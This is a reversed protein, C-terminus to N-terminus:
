QIAELLRRLNGGAIASKHDEDLRAYMVQAVAPLQDYTFLGSGFILREHGLYHAFQEIVQNGVFHPSTCLRLGPCARMLGMIPRTAAYPVRQLIITLRDFRQMVEHLQAYSAQDAHMFIPLRRQSLLDFMRACKWSAFEYACHAPWFQVGAAHHAMVREIQEDPATGPREEVTDLGFIGRLEVGAEDRTADLDAALDDNGWAPNSLYIRTNTVLAARAAGTRALEAAVDAMTPAEALDQDILRGILVDADFFEIM